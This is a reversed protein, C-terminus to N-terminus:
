IMVYRSFYYEFKLNNKFNLFNSRQAVCSFAFRVSREREGEGEEKRTCASVGRGGEWRGVDGIWGFRQSNEPARENANLSRPVLFM